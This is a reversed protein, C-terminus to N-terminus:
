SEVVNRKTDTRPKFLHLEMHLNLWVLASGDSSSLMRCQFVYLQPWVTSPTPNYRKTSDPAGDTIDQRQLPQPDAPTRPSAGPVHQFIQAADMQMVGSRSLTCCSSVVMKSRCGRDFCQSTLRRLWPPTARLAVFRSARHCSVGRAKRVWEWGQLFEIRAFLLCSWWTRHLLDVQQM